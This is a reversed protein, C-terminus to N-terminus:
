TALPIMRRVLIFVYKLRGIRWALHLKTFLSTLKFLPNTLKPKDKLNPEYVYAGLEVVVSQTLEFGLGM